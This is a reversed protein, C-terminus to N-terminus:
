NEHTQLQRKLYNVEQRHENEVKKLFDIVFKRQNQSM